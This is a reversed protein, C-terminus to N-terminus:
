FVLYEFLPISQTAATGSTTFRTNPDVTCTANGCTGEDSNHDGIVLSFTEGFFVQDLPVTFSMFLTPLGTQNAANTTQFAVSGAFPSFGDGCNPIDPSGCVFSYSAGTRTTGDTSVATIASYINGAAEFNFMATFTGTDDFAGQVAFTPQANACAFGLLCIALVLRIPAKASLVAARVQTFM